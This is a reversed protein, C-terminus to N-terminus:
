EESSPEEMVEPHDEAWMAAYTDFAIYEGHPPVPRVARANVWAELRPWEVAGPVEVGEVLTMAGFKLPKRGCVYVVTELPPPPEPALLTVDKRGRRATGTTM